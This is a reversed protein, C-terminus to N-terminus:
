ESIFYELDVYALHANLLAELLASENNLVAAQAESLDEQAFKGNQLGEKVLAETKKAWLLAEDKLIHVQKLYTEWSEQKIKLDYKLKGLLVWYQSDQKEIDLFSSQIAAENTDFVPLPIDLSAQLGNFQNDVSTYYGLGVAVDPYRQSRAQRYLARAIASDQAELLVQPHDELSFQPFVEPCEQLPYLLEASREHKGWLKDLSLRAAKAESQKDLASSKASALNLRGKNEDLISARGGRMKDALFDVRKELLAVQSEALQAEERKFAALIFAKKFGNLLKLVELEKKLLAKQWQTSALNRRANRKGGLEIPQIVFASIESENGVSSSGEDDGELELSLTPNPLVAAGQMGWLSQQISIEAQKLNPHQLLFQEKAGQWDIPAAVISALLPLTLM